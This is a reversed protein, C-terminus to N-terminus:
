TTPGEKPMWHSPELWHRTDWCEQCDNWFAGAWGMDVDDTFFGDVVGSPNFDDDIWDKHFLLVPTSDLPASNMSQWPTILEEVLCGPPLDHEHKKPRPKVNPRPSPAGRGSTM